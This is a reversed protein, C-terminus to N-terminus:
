SAPVWNDLRLGPVKAFERTNNTILPAQQSLAHAAIMTDLSGIPTGRRELEARLDGYVWIAPEDFPLIVLPALFLELAQRNRSSGSKAVGYALEAAVVSCIGIEGMRYRRFRELVAAPRANIVYICINTDLLIM